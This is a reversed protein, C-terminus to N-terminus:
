SHNKRLIPSNSAGLTNIEHKISLRAYSLSLFSFCVLFPSFSGVYSILM